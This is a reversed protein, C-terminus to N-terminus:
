SRMTSQTSMTPQMPVDLFKSTAKKENNVSAGVGVIGVVASYNGLYNEMFDAQVLNTSITMPRTYAQGRTELLPTLRMLAVARSFDRGSTRTKSVSCFNSQDAFLKTVLLSILKFLSKSM